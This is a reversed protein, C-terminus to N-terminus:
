NFFMDEGNDYAEKLRHYVPHDKIKEPHEVMARMKRAWGRYFTTEELISIYKLAVDYQGTIMNTEVLRHLARASKNYNPIAEMAEFASRQSINTMGIELAVESTLFASSVSRLALNSLTLRGMLEQQSVMGQRWAALRVANQIALSESPREQYLRTMTEWRQLRTLMDYRMEEHTGVKDSDWYTDGGLLWYGVPVLVLLGIIKIWMRFRKLVNLLLLILLFGVTLTMPINMNTWLYCFAVAPVLSLFFMINTKTKQNTKFLCWTLRQIAVFLVAYWLAGYVPNLFFQVVFEGLYRSLGGPVSLRETLYDTNWLFLQMQERAVLLHPLRFLWLCFVAVAFGATALWQWYAALIAKVRM